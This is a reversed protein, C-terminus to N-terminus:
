SQSQGQARVAAVLSSMQYLPYLSTPSLLISLKSDDARMAREFCATSYLGSFPLYATPRHWQSAQQYSDKLLLGPLLTYPVCRGGFLVLLETQKRARSLSGLPASSKGVSALCESYMRM